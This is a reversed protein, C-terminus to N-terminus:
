VDNDILSKIYATVTMGKSKAKAFLTDKYEPTVKIKVIAIEDAHKQEYRRVAELQSRKTKPEKVLHGKSVDTDIAADYPEIDTKCNEKFVFINSYPTSKNEHVALVSFSDSYAQVIYKSSEYSQIPISTDAKNYINIYMTKVNRELM